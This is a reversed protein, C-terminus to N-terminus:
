QSSDMWQMIVGLGSKDSSSWCHSTRMQKILRLEAGNM